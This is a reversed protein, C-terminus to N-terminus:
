QMELPSRAGAGDNSHEVRSTNGRGRGCGRGHGRASGRGRGHGSAARGSSAVTERTSDDPVQARSEAMATRALDRRAIAEAIAAQAEEQVRFTDLVELPSRDVSGLIVNSEKAVRLLHANSALSLVKFSSMSRTIPKSSIGQLVKSAKLNMAKDMMNSAKSAAARASTRSAKTSVIYVSVDQNRFIFM